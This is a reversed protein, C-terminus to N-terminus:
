NDAKKQSSAKTRVRSLTEITIGLFSAIYILKIRNAIHSYSKLFLQYKKEADHLRMIYGRNESLYYYLEAIKRGLLNFSPYKLYLKDLDDYRMVLLECDEIAQINELTDTRTIYCNLATVLENELAFWTTIDKKEEKIFGRLLGKNVFYFHECLQGSRLLYEGKSVKCRSVTKLLYQEVGKGIPHISNLLQFLQLLDNGSTSRKPNMYDFIICQILIGFRWGGM